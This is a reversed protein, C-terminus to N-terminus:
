LPLRCPQGIKELHLRLRSFFGREQKRSVVSENRLVKRRLTGRGFSRRRTFPAGRAGLLFGSNGSGGSSAEDSRGEKEPPNELCTGNRGEKATVGLGRRNGSFLPSPTQRRSIIHCCIRDQG